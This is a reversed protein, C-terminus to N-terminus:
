AKERLENTGLIDIVLTEFGDRKPAIPNRWPGIEIGKTDWRMAKQLTDLRNMFFLLFGM